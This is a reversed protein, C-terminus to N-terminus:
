ATVYHAATLVVGCGGNQFVAGQFNGIPTGPTLWNPVAFTQQSKGCGDLWFLFGFWPNFPDFVLQLDAYAFPTAIDLWGTCGFFSNAPNQPGIFLAFPAGAPGNWELTLTNGAPVTSAFPGKLGMQGISTTNSRNVFLAAEQSNAQGPGDPTQGVSVYAWEMLTSIASSGAGDGFYFGDATTTNPVPVGALYLVGDILLDAYTVGFLTATNIRYTHTLFASGPPTVWLPGGTSTLAVDGTIVNLILQAGAGPYIGMVGTSNPITGPGGTGGLLQFRAEIFSPLGAVMGPGTPAYAGLTGNYFGAGYTPNIVTQQVMVGCSVGFLTTTPSGTPNFAAVGPTADPLVGPQDFEFHYAYQAPVTAAVAALVLAALPRTANM